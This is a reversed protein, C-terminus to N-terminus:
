GTADPDVTTNDIVDQVGPVNSVLSQAYEADDISSVRGTLRVVGDAVAAHLPLQSTLSDDRLTLVVEQRIDEDDTPTGDRAAEELASEGFGTAVHVGYIGGPLVPADTPPDYPEADRVAELSDSTGVANPFPTLEDQDDTDSAHGTSQENEPWQEDWLNERATYDESSNDM